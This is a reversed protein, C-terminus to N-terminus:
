QNESPPKPHWQSLLSQLELPSALIYDPQANRTEDPNFAGWMAAVSNAGAENAAIVDAPNDGVFWTNEPLIALHWAALRVGDPAPKPRAVDDSTIVVDLLSTLQVHELTARASNRGKGTFVGLAWGNAKAEDIVQRIGPYLQVQGATHGDDYRQHFRQASQAIHEAHLPHHLLSYREFRSLLRSICESEAPGFTAVIEEDTPLRKVLPQVSRRFCDIIFGLTDVLTGDLDWLLLPPTM